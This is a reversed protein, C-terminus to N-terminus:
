ATSSGPPVLNVQSEKAQEHVEPSGGRSLNGLAADTQAQLETDKTRIERIAEVVSSVGSIMVGLSIAWATIIVVVELVLVNDTSSAFQRLLWFRIPAVLLASMPANILYIARLKEMITM